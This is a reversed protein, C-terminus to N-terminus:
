MNNSKQKMVNLYGGSFNEKYFLTSNVHLSADSWTGPLWVDGPGGPLWHQTTAAVVPAGRRHGESLDEKEPQEQRVLSREGKANIMFVQTLWGNRGWLPGACHRAWALHETILTDVLLHIFLSSPTCIYLPINSPCLLIFYYWKCSCPHVHTFYILFVFVPPM